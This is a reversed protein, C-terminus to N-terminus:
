VNKLAKLHDAVSMIAYRGNALDAKSEQLATELECERLHTYQAITLVVFRKEGRITIFTESNNKTKKSLVSAGQTKLEQATITNNMTNNITNHIVSSIISNPHARQLYAIEYSM